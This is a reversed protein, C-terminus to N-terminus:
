KKHPYWRHILRESIFATIIKNTTLGASHHFLYGLAYKVDGVESKLDSYEKTLIDVIDMRKLERRAREAELEHSKYIALILFFIPVAVTLMTGIFIFIFLLVVSEPSTFLQDM